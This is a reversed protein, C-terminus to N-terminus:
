HLDVHINSFRLTAIKPTSVADNNFKRSYLNLVLHFQQLTAPTLQEHQINEIQLCGVDAGVLDKHDTSLLVARMCHMRLATCVKVNHPQHHM